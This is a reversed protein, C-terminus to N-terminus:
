NVRKLKKGMEDNAAKSIVIKGANGIAYKFMAETLFPQPSQRKTGFNVYVAYWVNTGVLGSFAKVSETLPVSGGGSATSTKWTISGKLRGSIVPSLARAQSTVKICMEAVAKEAGNIGGINAARSNSIIKVTM